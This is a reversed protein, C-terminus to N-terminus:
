LANLILEFFKRLNEGAVYYSPAGASWISQLEGVTPDRHLFESLFRKADLKTAADLSALSREIWVEPDFPTPITYEDFCRSLSKFSEPAEM